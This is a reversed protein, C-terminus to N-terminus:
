LRRKNSSTPSLSRPLENADQQDTTTMSTLGLLVLPYRSRAHSTQGVFNSYEPDIINKIAEIKRSTENIYPVGHLEECNSLYEHKFNTVGTLPSFDWPTTAHIM